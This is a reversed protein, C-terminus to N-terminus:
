VLFAAERFWALVVIAQVALLGALVAGRLRPGVRDLLDAALLIVVPNAAVYRPMSWLTGSLLALIVTGGCLWSEARRRCRLLYGAAALGLVAWGANYLLGLHGGAAAPRVADALVSAPNRLAHGWAGQAHVFALPDGLRVWLLAMFAALGLPALCAPLLASVAAPAGRARLARSLGRVGLWAAVLVANPRTATLLASAGAALWPRGRAAALLCCCVLAAFLSETYPAQFYVGLPWALLVLLFPWRGAQAGRM